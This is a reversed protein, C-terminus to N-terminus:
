VSLKLIIERGKTVRTGPLVSQSRVFGRGEIKVKLGLNELVYIADKIGMGKVNPIVNEKIIRTKLRVASDAKVSVAWESNSSASDIPINLENYIEELEDKYGTSYVPYNINDALYEQDVQIDLNTAYVKNAIDRFVPVAVSSAYYRGTSPNSIVVICSFKPNDAPFYGVFSANYNTKNYGGGPQAIQATGTKGAIKFPSKKLSQATGNQVVGELMEKAMEITASSCISNDIITPSFKEITKGGQKIEKVFMPKVMTGNNAITNYFTMIQLPTVQLEYGYSMFPLSVASWSKDKTEKIYPTAEGPIEIGLPENLHFSYIRDIYKQPQKSYAKYILKSIGVNSSLELTERVSKKSKGNFHTDKITLGHFVVWGQGIDITDDLDYYGDEIAAVLSPLKFTSGPEVAYGVAYNYSESYTGNTNRKLNAIAKIEGTQVEMLVACGWAAKNAILHELLSSEAVDQIDVDITTIIDKGDQPEIENEDYVPKWDGSNIRKRLQRGEKGKLYQAYAGELGVYLNEKENEYGITRAALHNFPKARKVKPTIILGGRYKGREFIPFTRIEKLQEYTVNRKILFYRNGRRRAQILNKKYQYRTKDGFLNALDKALAGVNNNFDTNTILPSAVDMRIDFIPVSTALLSGDEACINGRIAEVRFYKMSQKQAEALLEDGEIFQIQLVKIIIALGFILMGFYVLYVRWLIDTKVSKM